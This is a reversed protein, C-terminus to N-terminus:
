IWSVNTAVVGGDIVGTAPPAKMEDRIKGDGEDLM